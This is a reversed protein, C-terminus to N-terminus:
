THPIFYLKLGLFDPVREYLTQIIAEIAKPGDVNGVIDLRDEPCINFVMGHEAFLPAICRPEGDQQVVTLLLKGRGLSNWWHRQWEWTLNVSDTHGDAMLRRRRSRDVAPDDFSMAIQTEISTLTTPPM